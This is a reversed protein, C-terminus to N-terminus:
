KVVTVMTLLKIMSVLARLKGYKLLIIALTNKLLVFFTPM